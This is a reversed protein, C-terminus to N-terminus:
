KKKKGELQKELKDIIKRVVQTNGLPYNANSCWRTHTLAKIIIKIDNEDMVVCGGIAEM